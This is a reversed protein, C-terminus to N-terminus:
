RTAMAQRECFGNKTNFFPIVERNAAGRPASSQDTRVHVRLSEGNWARLRAVPIDPDKFEVMTCRVGRLIRLFEGITLRRHDPLERTLKRYAEAVAIRGGAECVLQALALDIKDRETPNIREAADHKDLWCPITEDLTAILRVQAKTSLQFSGRSNGIWQQLLEPTLPCVLSLCRGKIIELLRPVRPGWIKRLSDLKNAFV